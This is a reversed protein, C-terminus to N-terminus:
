KRFYEEFLARYAEPMTEHLEDYTLEALNEGPARLEYRAAESAKNRTKAVLVDEEGCLDIVITRTM